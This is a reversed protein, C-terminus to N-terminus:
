SHGYMLYFINYKHVYTAALCKGVLSLQKQILTSDTIQLVNQDTLFCYIETQRDINFLEQGM